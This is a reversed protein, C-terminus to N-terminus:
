STAWAKKSKRRVCRSGQASGSGAVEWVAVVPARRPLHLVAVSLCLCLTLAYLVAPRLFYLGLWVWWWEVLCAVAKGAAKLVVQVVVCRENELPVRQAV